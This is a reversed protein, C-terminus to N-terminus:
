PRRPSRASPQRRGRRLVEEVVDVLFDQRRRMQRVGDLEEGALDLVAPQQRGAESAKRMVERWELGEDNPLRFRFPQAEMTLDRQEDVM